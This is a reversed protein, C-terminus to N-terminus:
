VSTCRSSAAVFPKRLLLPRRPIPFRKTGHHNCNHDESVEQQWAGNGLAGASAIEFVGRRSVRRKVVAGVLVSYLRM